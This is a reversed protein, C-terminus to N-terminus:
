SMSPVLFDSIFMGAALTLCTALRELNAEGYLPAM